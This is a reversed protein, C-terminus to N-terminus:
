DAAENSLSETHEAMLTLVLVAGVRVYENLEMFSEENQETDTEEEDLGSISAYDRLIEAVEDPLSELTGEVVAGFGTLYGACWAAVGGLRTSMPEEDDPVLPYFEMDQAHLQDLTATVFDQLTVNDELADTGVLDVLAPLVFQQPSAAAMGCVTGHLDAPELTRSASKAKELLEFNM